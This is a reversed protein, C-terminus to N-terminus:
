QLIVGHAKLIPDIIGVYVKTRIDYVASVLGAAQTIVDETTADSPLQLAVRVDDSEAM